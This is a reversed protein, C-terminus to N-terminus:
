LFVCGDNDVNTQLVRGELRSWADNVDDVSNENCVAVFSSGTGSLGSAIAGAQLADIAISSDFGLTSAYLLGNLNLAKFYDKNKAFDFAIEVLPALVRMRNVDSDGSKSIFNPMYVLIKYDDM